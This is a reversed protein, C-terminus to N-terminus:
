IKRAERVRKQNQKVKERMLPEDTLVSRVLSVPFWSKLRFTRYSHWINQFKLWHSPTADNVDWDSCFIASSKPDAINKYHGLQHLLKCIALQSKYTWGPDDLSSNLVNLWKEAYVVITIGNADQWLIRAIILEITRVSAPSLSSGNQRSDSNGFFKPSYWKETLINARFMVLQIPM